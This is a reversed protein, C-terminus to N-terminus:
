KRKMVYCLADNFHLYSLEEWPPVVPPGEIIIPRIEPPAFTDDGKRQLAYDAEKRVWDSRKANRSWFLLFLDCEDIHEYLKQKWRDGPDLSMIDVFYGIGLASLMQVRSVVEDRDESAYSCFAMAYGHAEDGVPQPELSSPEANAVAVTFEFKIHGVPVSDISAAVTGILMGTDGPYPVTVGFQVSAPRGNWILSQVPEDVELGPMFLDFTLTTGRPIETGLSQYGRRRARESFESALASAAQAQEPLHAFVQVLFAEGQRASPPAFVTCDVPEPPSGRQRGLPSRLVLQRERLSPGSVRECQAAGVAPREQPRGEAAALRDQRSHLQYLIQQSETSIPDNDMTDSGLTLTRSPPPRSEVVRTLFEASEEYYARAESTRGSEVCRDGESLLLEGATKFVSRVVEVAYRRLPHPGSVIVAIARRYLDLAERAREQEQRVDGMRALARAKLAADGTARAADLAHEFSAFAEDLASDNQSALGAEQFLKSARRYTRLRPLLSRTVIPNLLFSVGLGLLAALWWNGWAAYSVCLIATALLPLLLIYGARQLGRLYSFEDFESVLTSRMGLIFVFVGLWISVLFGLLLIAMIALSGVFM